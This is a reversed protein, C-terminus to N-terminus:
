PVSRPTPAPTPSAARRFADGGEVQGELQHGCEAGAPQHRGGVREGAVLLRDGVGGGGAPATGDLDGEVEAGFPCVRHAASGAEDELDVPRGRRGQEPVALAERELRQGLPLRTM